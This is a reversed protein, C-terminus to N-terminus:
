DGVDNQGAEAEKSEKEIEFNVGRGNGDECGVVVELAAWERAM